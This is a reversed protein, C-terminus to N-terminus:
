SRTRTWTHGAGLLLTCSPHDWSNISGQVGGSREPIQCCSFSSGHWQWLFNQRFDLIRHLCIQFINWSRSSSMFCIHFVNTLGQNLQTGDYWSFFRWPFWLITDLPLSSSDDRTQTIALFYKPPCLFVNWRMGGDSVQYRPAKSQCEGGWFFRTELCM